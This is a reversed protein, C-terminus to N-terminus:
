SHGSQSQTDLHLGPVHGSGTVHGTARTSPPTAVSVLVTGFETQWHGRLNIHLTVNTKKHSFELLAFSFACDILTWHM